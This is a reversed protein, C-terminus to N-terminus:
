RVNADLEGPCLHLELRGDGRRLDERMEGTLRDIIVPVTDGAYDVFRKEGGAHSQRM